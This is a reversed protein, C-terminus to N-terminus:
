EIVNASCHPYSPPVCAKGGSQQVSPTAVTCRRPHSLPSGPSISSSRAHTVSLLSTTPPPSNRRGSFYENRIQGGTRLQFAGSASKEVTRRTGEAVVRVAHRGREEHSGVRRGLLVQIFYDPRKGLLKFSGIFCHAKDTRLGSGIWRMGSREARRVRFGAYSGLVSKSHQGLRWDASNQHLELDELLFKTNTAFLTVRKGFFFGVQKGLYGSRQNCRTPERRM